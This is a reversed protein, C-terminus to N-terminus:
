IKRAYSEDEKGKLNKIDIGYQQKLSTNSANLMANLGYLGNQRQILLPIENSIMYELLIRQTEVKRRLCRNTIYGDIGYEKLLEIM